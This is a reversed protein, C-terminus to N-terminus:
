GTETFNFTTAASEVETGEEQAALDSGGGGGATLLLETATGSSAETLIGTNVNSVQYRDNTSDWEAEVDLLRTTTGQRLGIHAGVPLHNIQDLDSTM